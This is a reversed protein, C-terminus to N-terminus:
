TQDYKTLNHQYMESPWTNYLFDGRIPVLTSSDSGTTKM